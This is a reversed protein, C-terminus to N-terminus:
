PADERHVTARDAAAMFLLALSVGISLALATEIALIILGAWAKPYTLLTGSWLSTLLAVLLFVAFGITTALRLRITRRISPPLVGTSALMVGIAGLLAGGQFAGGPRYAGVWVFYGATMAIMPVMVGLGVLLVPNRHAPEQLVRSCPAAPPELSWVALVAVLLVAIELLTDYGRFNLLVATLPHLVGSEPMASTVTDSLGRGDPDLALVARALLYALGALVAIVLGHLCRFAVRNV